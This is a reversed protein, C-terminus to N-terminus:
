RFHGIAQLRALLPDLDAIRPADNGEIRRPRYPRQVPPAKRPRGGRSENKRAQAPLLGQQQLRRWARYLYTCPVGLASATEQPTLESHWAVVLIERSPM